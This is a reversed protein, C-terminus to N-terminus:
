RGLHRLSSRRLGRGDANSLVTIRGYQDRRHCVAREQVTPTDIQRITVHGRMRMVVFTRPCDAAVQISWAGPLKRHGFGHREYLTHSDGGGM